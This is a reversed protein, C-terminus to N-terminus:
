YNTRLEMQAYRIKGAFLCLILIAGIMIGYFILIIKSLDTKRKEEPGRIKPRKPLNVASDTREKCVEETQWLLAYLLFRM